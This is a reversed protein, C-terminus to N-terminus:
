SNCFFPNSEVFHLFDETGQKPLIRYLFVYKMSHAGWFSLVYVKRLM